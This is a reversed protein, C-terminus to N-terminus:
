RVTYQLASSPHPQRVHRIDWLNGRIKKRYASKGQSAVLTIARSVGLGAFVGAGADLQHDTCRYGALENFNKTRTFSEFRGQGLAKNCSPSLDGEIKNRLLARRVKAM